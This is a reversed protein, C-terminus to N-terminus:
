GPDRGSGIADAISILTLKHIQIHVIKAVLVNAAMLRMALTMGVVALQMLSQEGAQNSWIRETLLWNAVHIQEMAM